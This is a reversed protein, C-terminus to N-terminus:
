RSPPVRYKPLSLGASCSVLVSVCVFARLAARDFPDVEFIGDRVGM